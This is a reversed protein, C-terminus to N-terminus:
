RERHGRPNSWTSDTTEVPPIPDKQEAQVSEWFQWGQSSPFDETVEMGPLESARAAKSRAVSRPRPTQLDPADDMRQSTAPNLTKKSLFAEMMPTSLTTIYRNKEEEPLGLLNMGDRLTQMLHPVEKIVRARNRRTKRAGTAWVLATVARKLALTQEHQHGYRVSAFALVESWVTFLFDSVEPGIPTEHLMQRLLITYQVAFVDKAGDPAGRLDEATSRQPGAAHSSFFAKFETHAHRYAAEDAQAGQEIMLVLRSIETELARASIGSGDMDRACSALHAVLTMASHTEDGLGAPVGAVAQHVLPLQLRALWVRIVPSLRDDQLTTQLARTVSDLSLAGPTSLDFDLVTLNSSPPHISM